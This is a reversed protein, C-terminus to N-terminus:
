MTKNLTEILLRVLLFYRCLFLSFKFWCTGFSSHIDTYCFQNQITKRKFWHPFQNIPHTYMHVFQWKECLNLISSKHGHEVVGQTYGVHKKKQIFVYSFNCRKGTLLVSDQRYCKIATECVKPRLTLNQHSPGPSQVERGGSNCWHPELISHQMWRHCVTVGLTVFFLNSNMDIITITVNGAMINDQEMLLVVPQTTHGTPPQGSRWTPFWWVMIYFGTQVLEVLVPQLLVPSSMCRHM